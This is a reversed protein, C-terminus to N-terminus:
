LMWSVANERFLNGLRVYRAMTIDSAHGTQARVLHSPAGSQIASTVFGARLSHASYSNPDLGIAGVAQKVIKAVAEGSLRSELIHGGKRCSKFLPGKQEEFNSIWGLTFRAPCIRGRSFPIGIIRGKGEQDTKSRRISVVLGEPKEVIDECNLSVLESRRFGGAFGLSLLAKNRSDIVSNGLADMIRRLDELMLPAVQRQTMGYKRRLGKLATKVLIHQTPNASGELLRHAAGLAVIHRSLTSPHLRQGQDALYSALQEPSSPISGGWKLFARLDSQYAKRTNESHAERILERVAGPLHESHENQQLLDTM